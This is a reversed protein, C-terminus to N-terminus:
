RIHKLLITEQDDQFPIQCLMRMASDAIAHKRDSALVIDKALNEAIEESIDRNYAKFTDDPMKVMKHLVYQPKISRINKLDKLAAKIEEDTTFLPFQIYYPVCLVSEPIVVVSLHRRMQYDLCDAKLAMLSDSYDKEYPEVAAIASIADNIGNHRYIDYLPIHTQDQQYSYGEYRVGMKKLLGELNVTPAFQDIYEPCTHM